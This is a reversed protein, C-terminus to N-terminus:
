EWSKLSCPYHRDQGKEHFWFNSVWKEGLLVPCGAHHTSDDGVGNKKLNIWFVAAGKKPWVQTGANIFATAGGLDVDNLYSM